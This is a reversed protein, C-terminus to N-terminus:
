ANSALENMVNQVIQHIDDETPSASIGDFMAQMEAETYTLDM